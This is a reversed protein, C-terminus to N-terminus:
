SRNKELRKNVKLLESLTHQLQKIDRKLDVNEDWQEQLFHIAEAKTGEEAINNIFAAPYKAM